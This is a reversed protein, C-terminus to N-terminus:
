KSWSETLNRIENGDPDLIIIDLSGKRGSTIAIQRGTPSWEPQGDIGVLGDGGQNTLRRERDGAPTATYIEWDGDRISNFVVLGNAPSLHVNSNGMRGELLEAFEGGNADVTMLVIDTDHNGGPPSYSFAITNPSFWTPTLHDGPCDVLTRVTATELDVTSLEWTKGQRVEFVLQRSDPSWGPNTEDEEASTIRRLGSGDPRIIYIDFNGARNSHFAIWEGGPSWVPRADEATSDTLNALRDDEISIVFLNANGSCDSEFVLRGGDPGWSPHMENSPEAAGGSAWGACGILLAIGLPPLRVRM